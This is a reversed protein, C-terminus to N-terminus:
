QQKTIVAMVDAVDWDHGAQKARSRDDKLADRLAHDDWGVKVVQSFQSAYKTLARRARREFDISFVLLTIPVWAIVELIGGYGVCSILVFMILTTAAASIALLKYPSDINKPTM